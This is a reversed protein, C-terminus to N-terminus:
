WVLLPRAINKLGGTRKAGLVEPTVMNYKSQAETQNTHLPSIPVRLSARDAQSADYRGAGEGETVKFMLYLPHNRFGHQM